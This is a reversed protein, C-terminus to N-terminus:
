AAQLIATGLAAGQPPKEAARRDIAEEARYLAALRDLAEYWRGNRADGLARDVAIDAHRQVAQRLAVLAGAEDGALLQLAITRGYESIAEAAFSPVRILEAKFRDIAENIADAEDQHRYWGSMGWDPYTPGANRYTM